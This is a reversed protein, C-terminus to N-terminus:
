KVERQIEIFWTPFRDSNARNYFTQRNFGHAEAADEPCDFARGEAHYLRKTGRWRSGCLAAKHAESLPVGSPKYGVQLGNAYAHKQNESQTTWELNEARNNLKDGDKHNVHPKGEPNEVWTQAVMRHVSRNKGRVWIRAYGANSIHHKLPKGRPGIIQGDQRIDYGSFLDLLKLKDM